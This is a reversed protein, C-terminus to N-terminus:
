PDPSATASPPRGPNVWSVAPCGVPAKGRLAAHKVRGIWGRLPKGVADGGPWLRRAATRNIHDRSEADDFVRGALVPISITSFFGPTVGDIDVVVGGEGSRPKRGRVENM